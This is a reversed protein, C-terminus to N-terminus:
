EGGQEAEAKGPQPNEALEDLGMTLIDWLTFKEKNQEIYEWDIMEM